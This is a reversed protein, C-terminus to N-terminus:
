PQSCNSSGSRELVCSASCGELARGGSVFDSRGLLVRKSYLLGAQDSASNPNCSGETGFVRRAEPGLVPASPRRCNTRAHEWEATALGDRPDAGMGCAGAGKPRHTAGVAASSRLGGASLNSLNSVAAPGPASRWGRCRVSERVGRSKRGLTHCGARPRTAGLWSGM